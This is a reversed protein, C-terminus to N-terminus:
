LFRDFYYKVCNQVDLYYEPAVIVLQRAFVFYFTRAYRVYKRANVTRNGLKLSIKSRYATIESSQYCYTGPPREQQNLLMAVFVISCIQLIGPKKSRKKNRIHVVRLM